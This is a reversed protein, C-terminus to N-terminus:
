GYQVYSFWEPESETLEYTKLFNKIENIWEQKVEVREKVKIPDKYLAADHAKRSALFWLDIKENFSAVSNYEHTNDLILTGGDFMDISLEGILDDEIDDRTFETDPEEQKFLKWKMDILKNVDAETLKCGFQVETCPRMSM